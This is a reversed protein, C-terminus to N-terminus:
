VAEEVTAKSSGKVKEVTAESVGEAEVAEEAAAEGEGEVEVM